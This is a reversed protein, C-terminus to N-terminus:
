QGVNPFEKRFRNHLRLTRQRVNAPELGLSEGIERSSLVGEAHLLLILRDQENLGALFQKVAAINKSDAASTEYPAVLEDSVSDTWADEAEVAVAGVARRIPISLLGTGVEEIAEQERRRERNLEIASNKVAKVMYNFLPDKGGYTDFRLKTLNSITKYIVWNAIEEADELITAGYRKAFFILRPLALDVLEEAAAQDDALLRPVLGTLPEVETM